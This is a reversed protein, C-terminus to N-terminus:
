RRSKNMWVRPVAHMGQRPHWRKWGLAQENLRRTSTFPKLPAPCAGCCCRRLALPTFVALKPCDSSPFTVTVSASLRARRAAYGAGVHVSLWCAPGLPNKRAGTATAAVSARQFVGSSGDSSGGKTTAAVTSTAGTANGKKDAAEKAMEKKEAAIIAKLQECTKGSLDEERRSRDHGEHDEHGDHDATCNALKKMAAEAAEIHEHHEGEHDEHAAAEEKCVKMDLKADKAVSKPSNCGQDECSEEYDHLAAEVAPDVDDHDLVEHAMYVSRFADECTTSNCTTKCNNEALVAAAVKASDATIGTPCDPLDDDRLRHIICPTYLDEYTHVATEMYTPLDDHSCHDHHAQIILFNKECDPLHDTTNAGCKNAPTGLYTNASQTSALPPM